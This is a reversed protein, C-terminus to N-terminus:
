PRAGLFPKRVKVSQMRCSCFVPQMYRIFRATYRITELMTSSYHSM